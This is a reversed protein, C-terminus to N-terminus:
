SIKLSYSYPFKLYKKPDSIFDELSTVKSLALIEESIPHIEGGIEITRDKRDINSYFLREFEKLYRSCNTNNLLKVLLENELGQGKVVNLYNKIEEVTLIVAPEPKDRPLRQFKGFPNDTLHDDKDVLFKGFGKLASNETNVKSSKFSSKCYDLYKNWYFETLLYNQESFHNFVNRACNFYDTITGPSYKEEILWEKFENLLAICNSPETYTSEEGNRM